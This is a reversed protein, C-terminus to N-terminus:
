LDKASEFVRFSSFRSLRNWSISSSAVIPVATSTNSALVMEAWISWLYDTMLDFWPVGLAVNRIEKFQM